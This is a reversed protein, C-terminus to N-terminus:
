IESDANMRKWHRDPNPFTNPGCIFNMRNQCSLVHRADRQQNIFNNNMRGNAYFM